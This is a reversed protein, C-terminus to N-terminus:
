PKTDTHPFLAWLWHSVPHFDLEMIHNEMCSGQEFAIQFSTLDEKNKGGRGLGELGLCLLELSVLFVSMRVLWWTGGEVRWGFVRFKEREEGEVWSLCVECGRGWGGM